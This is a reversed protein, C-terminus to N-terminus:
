TRLEFRSACKNDKFKGLKTRLELDREELLAGVPTFWSKDLFVMLLLFQGAMLPLTANFDFIKGAYAHAPLAMLANALATVAAPRAWAPVEAKRRPPVDYRDTGTTEKQM